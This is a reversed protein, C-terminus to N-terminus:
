SSLLRACANLLKGSHSKCDILEGRGSILIAMVAVKFESSAKRIFQWPLVIRAFGCRLVRDEDHPGVQVFQKIAQRMGAKAVPEPENLLFAGVQLVLSELGDQLVTRPEDRLPERGGMRGMVALLRRHAIMGDEHGLM